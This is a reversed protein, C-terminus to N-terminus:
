PADNVEVEYGDPDRFYIQKVGDSRTVYAQAKGGGDTFPIHNVNLVKIFDTVSAVSFAIHNDKSVIVQDKPEQIIHLQMNGGLSLWRVHEGPFPNKLTDLHFLNIYFAATKDADTVLFAMHNFNAYRKQAFVGFSGTLLLILLLTKKLM